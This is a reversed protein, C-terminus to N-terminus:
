KDSRSKLSVWISCVQVSALSGLEIGADVSLLEFQGGVILFYRNKPHPSPEITLLMQEEEMPDLNSKQCLEAWLM